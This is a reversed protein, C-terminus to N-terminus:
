TKANQRKPNHEEKLPTQDSIRSEKGGLARVIAHSRVRSEELICRGGQDLRGPRCTLSHGRDIDDRRLSAQQYQLRGPEFLWSLV